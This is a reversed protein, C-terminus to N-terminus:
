SGLWAKRPNFGSANLYKSPTLGKVKSGVADVYDATGWNIYGGEEFQHKRGASSGGGESIGGSTQHCVPPTSRRETSPSPRGPM